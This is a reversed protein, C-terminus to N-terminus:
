GLGHGVAVDIRCACSYEALAMLLPLTFEVCVHGHGVVVDIRAKNPPWGPSALKPHIHCMWLEM